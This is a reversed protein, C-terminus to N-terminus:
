SSHEATPNPYRRNLDAVFRKLQRISQRHIKPFRRQFASEAREFGRPWLVVGGMLVFPTGLPGPFVLGGVGMVMLLM